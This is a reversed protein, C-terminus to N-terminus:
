EEALELLLGSLLAVMKAEGLDTLILDRTRRDEARSRAVLGEAELKGIYRLATTQPVAAAVCASSISVARGARSYAFLDLM